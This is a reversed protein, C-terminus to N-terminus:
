EAGYGGESVSLEVDFCVFRLAVGFAQVFEVAIYPKLPTTGDTLFGRPEFRFRLDFIQNSHNFGTLEIEDCDRFTMEIVGKQIATTEITAVIQPGVWVDDDPRMDGRWINLRHVEADHFEPWSGDPGLVLESGRVHAAPDFAEM